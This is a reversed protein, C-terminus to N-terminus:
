KLLESPGLRLFEIRQYKDTEYLCGIEEDPLSALCSYAFSGPVIIPGKTWSAGEDRSLLITGNMRRDATHPLTHLLVGPLKGDSWSYRLVSSMCPPTELDTALRHVSWTVGGDRSTSIKRCTGKPEDRATMLIGGDELEALQAEDGFSGSETEPIPESLKWTTGGDDSYSVSNATRRKGEGLHYVEYNPFVVRNRHPGRSLVLGTGPSGLSVAQERRMVRTVDRPKTWNAGHDKSSTLYIRVSKPGDYGPEAMVTHASVSAHVGKPFRTYRLLLEGSPLRVVCPDNLSDAGEEAVVQLPLWTKGNDSSRRLVIDNEAHDRLGVRRECFACLSGDAAVVLAPIRYGTRVSNEESLQFVTSHTRAGAVPEVASLPRSM